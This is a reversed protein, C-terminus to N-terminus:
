NKIYHKGPLQIIMEKIELKTLVFQLNNMPLKTMHLLEDIFIPTHCLCEYVQEEPHDLTTIGRRGIEADNKEVFGYEELIDEVGFVPKGGMRIVNNSGENSSGLVDGPIAFVDKGAELGCDITILSGSKRRAEVLLIGNSLGSILRNRMPFFGPKPKVDLGYESIICGKRAIEKMLSLNEKPYCVNIGCGLVATTLGGASLAGQHGYSDIGRALGSVVNVGEIALDHGFKEAVKRGYATCKRSGVVGISLRHQILEGRYYLVYPPDFLSKLGRPYDEEEMTIYEIGMAKLRREYTLLTNLERSAMFNKYDKATLLRSSFLDKLQTGEIYFLEKTTFGAELLLGIKKLGFGEIRTLWLWYKKNIDM